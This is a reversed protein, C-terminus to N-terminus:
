LYVRAWADLYHFKQKSIDAMQTAIGIIFILTWLPYQSPQPSQLPTSRSKAKSKVKREKSQVQFYSVVCLICYVSIVTSFLDPITTM